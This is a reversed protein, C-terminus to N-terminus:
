GRGFLRAWFGRKSDTQSSSSETRVQMYPRLQEALIKEAVPDGVPTLMRELSVGKAVEAQMTELEGKFIETIMKSCKMRLDAEFSALEQRAIPRLQQRQEASLTAGANQALALRVHVPLKKVLIAIAEPLHVGKAGPRIPIFRALSAEDTQALANLLARFDGGVIVNQSMNQAFVAFEGLTLLKELRCFERTEAELATFDIPYSEPVGIRGLNKLLTNDKASSAEVQTVMDGFPQDFALTERLISALQDISSPPLGKIALLEVAEMLTLDIYKAPTDDKSNIPWEDGELNQALSYIPTDVMISTAFGKRIKDWEQTTTVTAPMSLPEVSLM